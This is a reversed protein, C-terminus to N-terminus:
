FPNYRSRNLTGHRFLTNNFEMKQLIKYVDIVFLIMIEFILSYFLFHIISVSEHIEDM